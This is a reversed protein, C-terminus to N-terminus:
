IVVNQRPRNNRNGQTLALRGQNSTSRTLTQILTFVFCCKRFTMYKWRLADGEQLNTKWQSPCHSFSHREPLQHPIFGVLCQVSIVRFAVGLSSVQQEQESEQEVLEEAIQWTDTLCGTLYPRYVSLELSECAPNSSLRSVCLECCISMVSILYSFIWGLPSVKSM